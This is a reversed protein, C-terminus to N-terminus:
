KSAKFGADFPCVIFFLLGSVSNSVLYWEVTM